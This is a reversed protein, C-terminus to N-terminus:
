LNDSLVIWCFSISDRTRAANMKESFYEVGALDDAGLHEGYLLTTEGDWCGIDLLSNITRAHPM